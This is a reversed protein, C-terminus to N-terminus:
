VIAMHLIFPLFLAIFALKLLGQAGLTQGIINALFGDFGIQTNSNFRGQLSLFSQIM